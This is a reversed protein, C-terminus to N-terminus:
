VNETSKLIMAEFINMYSESTKRQASDHLYFKYERVKPKNGSASSSSKQSANKKRNFRRRNGNNGSYAQRSSNEKGM